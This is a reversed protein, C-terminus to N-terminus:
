GEVCTGFLCCVFVTVTEPYYFITDDPHVTIYYSRLVTVQIDTIYQLVSCQVNGAIEYFAVLNYIALQKQLYENFM